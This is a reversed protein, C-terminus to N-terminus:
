WSGAGVFDVPYGGAKANYPQVEAGFSVALGQQKKGVNILQYNKSECGGKTNIHLSVLYLGATDFRHTFPHMGLTSSDGTKDFNWVYKTLTDVGISKDVFSVSRKVSDVTYVYKAKCNNSTNSGVQIEQCSINSIGKDNVVWLCVNYYGSKNYKYKNTNATDEIAMGDGYDWVKDVITGKSNDTFTVSDTKSNYRYFFDAECDSGADGVLVTTEYYDMCWTDNDFTSLGITYYGPYDFTHTANTDTSEYGDGFYWDYDTSKGIVKNKCNVTLKNIM